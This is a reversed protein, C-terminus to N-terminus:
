TKRIYQPHLCLTNQLSLWWLGTFHHSLDLVNSIFILTNLIIKLNNQTRRGLSWAADLDLWWCCIYYHSNLVPSTNIDYNEEIVPCLHIINILQGAKFLFLVIRITVSYNINQKYIMPSNLSIFINIREDCPLSEFCVRNILSQLEQWDTCGAECYEFGLGCFNSTRFLRSYRFWHGFFNCTRLIQNDYIEHNFVVLQTM